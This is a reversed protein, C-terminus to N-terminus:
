NNEKRILIDKEKLYGEEKINGKIIQVDNDFIEENTIVGVKYGNNKLVRILENRKNSKNYDLLFIIRDKFKQNYFIQNIKNIKKIYGYPIKIIYNYNTKLLTLSLIEYAMLYYEEELKQKKFIKNVYEKKYNSDNIEYKYRVYYLGNNIRQFENYFDNTEFYSYFTEELRKNNKILNSISNIYNEYRKKVKFNEKTNKILKYIYDKYKKNDKEIKVATDLLVTLYLIELVYEQTKINKKKYYETVFYLLINLEDDINNYLDYYDVMLVPDDDLEQFYLKDIYLSTIDKLDRNFESKNKWLNSTKITIFDSIIKSYEVINKKKKNLYAELVSM